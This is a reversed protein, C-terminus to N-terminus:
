SLAPPPSPNRPDKKRRRSSKLAFLARNPATEHYPRYMGEFMGCIGGLFAQRRRTIAVRVSTIVIKGFFTTSIGRFKIFIVRNQSPRGSNESKRPDSNFKQAPSLRDKWCMGICAGQALLIM